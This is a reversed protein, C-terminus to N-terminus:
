AVDSSLLAQGQAVRGNQSNACNTAYQTHIHLGFLHANMKPRRKHTTLSIPWRGAQLDDHAGPPNASQDDTRNEWDALM